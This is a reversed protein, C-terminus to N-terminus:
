LMRLETSETTPLPAAGLLAGLLRGVIKGVLQQADIRCTFEGMTWRDCRPAWPEGLELGGEWIAFGGVLEGGDFCCLAVQTPRARHVAHDHAVNAVSLGLHRQTGGEGHELRPALDGHQHWRGHEGQLM